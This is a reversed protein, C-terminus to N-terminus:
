FNEHTYVHIHTHTQMHKICTYIHSTLVLLVPFTVPITTLYEHVHTCAHRRQAPNPNQDVSYIKKNKNKCGRVKKKKKASERVIKKKVRWLWWVAFESRYDDDHEHSPQASNYAFQTVPKPADDDVSCKWWWRRSMNKKKLKIKSSSSCTIRYLLEFYFSHYHHYLFFFSCKM